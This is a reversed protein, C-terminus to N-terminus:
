IGCCTVVCMLIVQHCKGHKAPMAKCTLLLGHALVQALCHLVIIAAFQLALDEHVPLAPAIEFSARIHAQVHSTVYAGECACM